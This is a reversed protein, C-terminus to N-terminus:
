PPCRGPMAVDMEPPVCAIFNGWAPDFSPVGGAACCPERTVGKYGVGVDGYEPCVDSCFYYVELEQDNRTDRGITHPLCSASKELAHKDRRNFCKNLGEDILTMIQESSMSSSGYSDICACSDTSAGTATTSAGETISAGDTTSEGGTVSAGCGTTFLPAAAALAAIWRSIPSGARTAENTEM